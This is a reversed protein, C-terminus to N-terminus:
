NDNGESDIPANELRTGNDDPCCQSGTDKLIAMYRSSDLTGFSACDPKDILLEVGEIVIGIDEPPEQLGEGEKRIVFVAMTVQELDRQVDDAGCDLYEKILGDVDEGLFITLAKLVCERRHNIDVTKTTSSTFIPLNVPLVLQRVHRWVPIGRKFYDCLQSSTLDSPPPPADCKVGLWLNHCQGSTWGSTIYDEWTVRSRSRSRM